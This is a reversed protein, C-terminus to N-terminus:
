KLLLQAVSGEFLEGVVYRNTLPILRRLQLSRTLIDSVV